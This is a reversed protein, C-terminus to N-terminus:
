RCVPGPIRLARAMPEHPAESRRSSRSRVEDHRLRRPELLERRFSRSKLTELAGRSGPTKCGSTRIVLDFRELALSRFRVTRAPSSERSMGVDALVPRMAQAVEPHHLSRRYGALGERGALRIACASRAVEESGGGSRPNVLPHRPPRSGRRPPNAAPQGTRRGAGGGVRSTVVMVRSGACAASFPV